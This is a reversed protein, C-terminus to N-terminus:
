LQDFYIEILNVASIHTSPLLVFNIFTSPMSFFAGDLLHQQATKKDFIDEARLLKFGNAKLRDFPWNM